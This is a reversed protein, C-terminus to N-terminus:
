DIRQREARVRTAFENMHKDYLASLSKDPLVGEKCVMAMRTELWDSYSTKAVQVSYDTIVAAIVHMIANARAESTTSSPEGEMLEALTRILAVLFAEGDTDYNEHFWTPGFIAAQESKLQAELKGVQAMAPSKDLTRRIHGIFFRFTETEMCALLRTLIHFILM